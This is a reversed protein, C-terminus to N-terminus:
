EEEQAHHRLLRLHRLLRMETTTLVATGYLAAAAHALDLRRSHDIATAAALYSRALDLIETRSLTPLIHRAKADVAPDIATRAQDLARWSRRVAVSLNGLNSLRRMVNRRALTVPAGHQWSSFQSLRDYYLSARPQNLHKEDVLAQRLSRGIALALRLRRLAPDVPVILLLSLFICVSGAFVFTANDVFVTPNLTQVNAPSILSISQVGYFIGMPGRGTKILWCTLTVVPALSIIFLPYDSINPFIFFAYIIGTVIVAPTMFLAARGMTLPDHMVSGLAVFVVTGLLMSNASPLGSMIAILGVMGVALGVRLGNLVAAIYDQHVPLRASRRPPRGVRNSLLGDRIDRFVEIMFRSRDLVYAEEISFNEAEMARYTLADLDPLREEPHQTVIAARVISIAEDVVSSASPMSRLGLGIAQIASIAEFLGLLASRAGKARALGDVLEPTAFSIESRLPMLRVSMAVCQSSDPPARRDLTALAMAVIDRTALRLKSQLSRASEANAFISSVFALVLVALLIVAVRDLMATFAITPADINVISILAVTYGALICGYARFDRLLTGIAVLCAMYVSFVAILMTRDQSFLSTLIIAFAAGFLTGLIRYIAKSLIMGQTPGVLILLGTGASAASNLELMFAIYYSVALAVWIEFALAATGKPWPPLSLHYSRLDRQTPDTRRAAASINM